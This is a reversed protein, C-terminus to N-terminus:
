KLAAKRGDGATAAPQQVCKQMCMARDYHEDTVQLYHKAAVNIDHGIWKCVTHPPFHEILETERTSRLNHFPKPWPELGAALIAAELRRRLSKPPLRHREIVFEAGDRAAAWVADLHPRIEPFLPILRTARGTHRETKVSRVLIRNQEWNIDAWRMALPESPVRLGGYRALAVILRMEPEVLQSIVRNIHEQPIFRMRSRDEIQRLDLMSGFPNESVLKHKIAAIYFQRARLCFTRATNEAHKGAMAQRFDDADGETVDDLRRNEGFFEVLKNRTYKLMYLSKPKLSKRTDIYRQTFKGITADQKAKRKTLLGVEAFKEYLKADIRAIWESTARDYSDGSLNASQIAEINRKVNEADRATM